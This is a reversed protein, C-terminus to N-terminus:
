AVVAHSHESLINLNTSTHQPSAHYWPNPLLDQPADRGPEAEDERPDEEAPISADSPKSIGSEEVESDHPEPLFQPLWDTADNKTINQPPASKSPKTNPTPPRSPSTAGSIRSGDPAFTLVQRAGRRYVETKIPQPEPEPEPEKTEPPFGLVDALTVNQGSTKGGNQSAEWEAPPACIVLSFTGHGEVVKLMRAQEGSVSLMIVMSESKKNSIPKFVGPSANSGIALVQASEVLTKTVEPIPEEKTPKSRFLVDVWNGPTMTNPIGVVPVEIPMAKFGPRLKESIDPETGEPYFVDPSFPLGKSVSKKLIRGLLQRGDAMMIKPWNTKAIQEPTMKLSLFDSNRLSRGAPLDDVALLVNQTKPPAAATPKQEYSKKLGYIVALGTLLGFFALLIVGPSLRSM